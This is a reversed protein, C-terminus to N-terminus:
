LYRVDISFFASSNWFTCIELANQLIIFDINEFAIFRLNDKSFHILINKASYLIFDNWYFISETWLFTDIISM